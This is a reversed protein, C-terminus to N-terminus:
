RKSTKQKKRALGATTQATRKRGAHSTPGSRAPAAQTASPGATANGSGSQTPAATREVHGQKNDDIDDLISKNKAGREIFGHKETRGRAYGRQKWQIDKKKWIEDCVIRVEFYLQRGYIDIGQKDLFDCAFWDKAGKEDWLILEKPRALGKKARCQPLVWIELDTWHTFSKNRLRQWLCSEETEPFLETKIYTRFSRLSEQWDLTAQINTALRLDGVEDGTNRFAIVAHIDGADAVEDFGRDPSAFFGNAPERFHKPKCPAKIPRFRESLSRQREEGEFDLYDPVVQPTSKSKLYRRVKEDLSLEEDRFVRRWFSDMVFGPIDQHSNYDDASPYDGVRRSNIRWTEVGKYTIRDYPPIADRGGRPPRGAIREVVAVVVVRMTIRDDNEDDEDAEDDQEPIRGVRVFKRRDGDEPYKDGEKLAPSEDFNETDSDDTSYEADLDDENNEEGNGEEEEDDDDQPPPAGGRSRFQGTERTKPMEDEDEDDEDEEDDPQRRKQGGTAGQRQQNRGTARSHGRQVQQGEGPLRYPRRGDQRKVHMMLVKSDNVENGEDAFGHNAKISDFDLTRTCLANRRHFHIVDEKQLDLPADPFAEAWATYTKFMIDQSPLYTHANELAVGPPSVELSSSAHARNIDVRVRFGLRPYDRHQDPCMAVKIIFPAM